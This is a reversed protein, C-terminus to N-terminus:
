RSEFSLLCPDAVSSGLASDLSLSPPPPLPSVLDECKKLLSSDSIVGDEDSSDSGWDPTLAPQIVFDSLTTLRPARETRLRIRVTNVTTKPKPKKRM